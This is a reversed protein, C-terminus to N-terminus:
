QTAGHSIAGAQFRLAAAAAKLIEGPERMVHRQLVPDLERTPKELISAYARLTEPDSM